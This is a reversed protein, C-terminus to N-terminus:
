KNNENFKIIASNISFFSDSFNIQLELNILIEYFYYNSILM